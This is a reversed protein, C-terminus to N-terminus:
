QGQGTNQNDHRFKPWSSPALGHSSSELAYLYGGAAVYVTGDMGIAISSPSAQLFYGQKLSGDPNVAYVYGDDSAIYVTGDAGATLSSRTGSGSIGFFWIQNLPTYAEIYRFPNTTFYRIDDAGFVTPVPLVCPGGYIGGMVEGQPSLAGCETYITGGPDLAVPKGFYLPKGAYDRLMWKLTGAPTLAYFTGNVLSGDRSIVSSAHITGDVAIIPDSDVLGITPYSWKINGDSGIAYLYPESSAVYVTGDTAIAPASQVKPFSWRLTGVPNIAYLTGGSTIFITGDPGVSPIADGSPPLIPYRWKLSGNANVADLYMRGADVAGAYITGDPAIAPSTPVSPNQTGIQLQWKLKGMPANVEVQITQEARGGKPYNPLCYYFPCGGIIFDEVILTVELKKPFPSQPAFIVSVGIPNNCGINPLTGTKDVVRCVLYDGDQDSVSWRFTVSLPAPGSVPDATFSTIVPAHNIQILSCATLLLLLPVVLRFGASTPSTWRSIAQSM